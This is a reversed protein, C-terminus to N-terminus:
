RGDDFICPLHSFCLLLMLCGRSYMPHPTGCGGCSNSFYHFYLTTVNDPGCPPLVAVALDAGGLSGSVATYPQRRVGGNLEVVDLVAETVVSGALGDVPEDLFGLGGDVLEGLKWCPM